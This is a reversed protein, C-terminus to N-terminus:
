KMEKASPCLATLFCNKCDPTRAKCVARGHDIMLHSYLIWDNKPIVKILDIEVKVADTQSTLKLHRNIRGVHTDVVIGEALGFGAGLVVSATKRGVGALTVLKDLEKPIEGDYLELLQQASKKISKAKNKYFGTAYVAQELEAIDANAFAQISTYKCFLAPTTKNVREDTCQASLITAVMLEHVTTFHLSCQANPYNKKLLRIIKKARIIKKELSERPM